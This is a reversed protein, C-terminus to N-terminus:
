LKADDYVISVFDTVSFDVLDLNLTYFAQETLDLTEM